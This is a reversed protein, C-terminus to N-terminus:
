AGRMRSDQSPDAIRCCSKARVRGTLAGLLMAIMFAIVLGGLFYRM